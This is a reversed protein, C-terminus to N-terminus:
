GDVQGVRAEPEGSRLKTVQLTGVAEAGKLNECRRGGEGRRWCRSLDCQSVRMISLSLNCLGGSEGTSWRRWRRGDEEEGHRDDVGIM